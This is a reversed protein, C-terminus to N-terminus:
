STELPELPYSGLVKVRASRDELHRLASAVRRDDTHGDIDAFFVYDWPADPAPRSELRTLNVGSDNFVGLAQYLAGAQNATAFLLTTRHDAGEVSPTKGRGLVAFRTHNGTTDEIRNVLTVLGFHEAALSSAIAASDDLEQVTRAAESTSTTAVADVDHLNERLWKRCQALAQPHSYVRKINELRVGEKAMLHHTVECRLEGLISLETRRLCDFTM